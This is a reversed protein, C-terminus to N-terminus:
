SAESSKDSVDWGHSYREKLRKDVEEQLSKIQKEYLEIQNLSQEVTELQAKREYLDHAESNVSSFKAAMEEHDAHEGRDLLNQKKELYEFARLSPALSLPVTGNKILDVKSIRKDCLQQLIQYRKAWESGKFAHYYYDEFSYEDAYVFDDKTYAFERSEGKSALYPDYHQCYLIWEDIKSARFDICGLPKDPHDLDIEKFHDQLDMTDIQKNPKIWLHIHDKKEDAEATHEILIYDSIVHNRLLENLRDILYKKSNYSITAIEKRTRM